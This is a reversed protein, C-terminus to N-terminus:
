LNPLIPPLHAPPIPIPQLPSAVPYARSTVDSSTSDMHEGGSFSVDDMGEPLDSPNKHPQGIDIIKTIHGRYNDHGRSDRLRLPM